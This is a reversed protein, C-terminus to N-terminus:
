ETGNEVYIKGGEIKKIKDLIYLIDLVCIYEQVEDFYNECLKYIKLVDVEGDLIYSLVIPLKSMVSKNYTILKDPFIM